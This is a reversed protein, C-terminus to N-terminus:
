PGDPYLLELPPNQPCRQSLREFEALTEPGPPEGIGAAFYPSWLPEELSGPYSAIFRELSPIDHVAVGEAALCPILDEVYYDYTIRLQEESPPQNFLPHVPYMASCRYSARRLAEAQEPPVQGYSVGNDFTEEAEFGQDRICQARVRGFEDPHIYRLFEVDTPVEDLGLVEAEEALAEDRLRDWHPDSPFVPTSPQPSPAAEPESSCAATFLLVLVLASRLITRSVSMEVQRVAESQRRAM